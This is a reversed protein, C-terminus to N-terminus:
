RPPESHRRESRKCGRWWCMCGSKGCYRANEWRCRRERSEPCRASSTLVHLHRSCRRHCGAEFFGDGNHTLQSVGDSQDRREGDPKQCDSRRQPQVLCEGVPLDAAAKPLDPAARREHGRRDAIKVRQPNCLRNKAATFDRELNRRSQRHQARNVKQKPRRPFQNSRSNANRLQM